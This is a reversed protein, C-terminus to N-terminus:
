FLNLYPSDPPPIQEVADAQIRLSEEGEVELRDLLGRVRVWSDIEVLDASAHRVLVAVPQADAVCCTIAFRFLVFHGEPVEPGHYVMGETEVRRGLQADPNEHLEVLTAGEDGEARPGASRGSLAGTTTRQVVGRKGAAAAGLTESHAAGLYVLPLLMVATRVWVTLQGLRPMQTSRRGLPAILLVALLALGGYVLPTFGANLYRTYRPAPDGSLLWGYAGLWAVVITLQLLRTLYGPAARM